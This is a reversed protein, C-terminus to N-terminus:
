KFRVHALGAKIYLLEGLQEMLEEEREIMSIMKDKGHVRLPGDDMEIDPVEYWGQPLSRIVGLKNCQAFMDGAIDVEMPSFYLTFAGTAGERAGAKAKSIEWNVEKGVKVKNVRIASGPHMSVRIHNLHQLAYAGDSKYSRGYVKGGSLNLKARVQRICYVTTTNVENAPDLGKWSCNPCNWSFNMLEYNTVKKELPSYGCDPCRFVVGFSDLVKKAWRTQITAPSAVQPVEDMTAKDEAATLMSDWSDIGILQYVNSAVAEIIGDLVNEAPGEFIHFTGVEKCSLAERIEAKSLPEEGRAERARQTVEIDYESMAVKCGCMQAFHKDIFAEFCAMALVAKEGYRKQVQGFYRYLMYNKGVSEPGDFQHVKGAVLGGGMALDMSPIGSPRRLDSADWAESASRIVPGADGFRMNISRLVDRPDPKPFKDWQKRESKKAATKKAPAKKKATKKAAKKTAM